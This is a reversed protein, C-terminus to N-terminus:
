SIRDVYAAPLGLRRALDRLKGAYEENAEGPPPPEPLNFCLAPVLSSDDLEAIVAEPRYERVSAEAYLQEVEDHSLQMLLGHVRSGPDPVLTARRGIRLAFGPVCARRPHIPQVGKTRLLDADMFLGYFFVVIRRRTM